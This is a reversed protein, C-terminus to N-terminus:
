ESVATALRCLEAYLLLHLEADAGATHHKDLLEASGPLLWRVLEKLSMTNKATEPGADQGFCTRVWRGIEPDMTCCGARAANAWEKQYDHLGCRALERDIIGADFTLHHAVVRGGRRLVDHVDEMFESLVLDLPLGEKVAKEQGINHYQTACPSVTFGSPHILREKRTEVAPGRGIAYGLQIMRAELKQPSCFSYHGFQGIEGKVRREYEWGATEIDIGMVLGQRLKATVRPPAPSPTPREVRIDQPTPTPPPPRKTPVHSLSFLAAPSTRPKKQVPARTEASCLATM